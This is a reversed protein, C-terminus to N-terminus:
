PVVAARGAERVVRSVAGSPVSDSTDGKISCTCEASGRWMAVHGAQQRGEMDGISTAQRVRAFTFAGGVM